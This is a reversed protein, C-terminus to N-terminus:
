NVFCVCIKIRENYCYIREVFGHIIWSATKQTRAQRTLALFRRPLVPRAGTAMLDIERSISLMMEWENLALTEQLQDV